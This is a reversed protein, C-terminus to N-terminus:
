WRTEWEWEVTIGRAELEAVLMSPDRVVKVANMLHSTSMKRARIRQGFITLWYGRPRRKHRAYIHRYWDDWNELPPLRLLRLAAYETRVSWWRDHSLHVRFRYYPADEPVAQLVRGEFAAWVLEAYESVTLKSPEFANVCSRAPGALPPINELISGRM